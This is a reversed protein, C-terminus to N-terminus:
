RWSNKYESIVVDENFFGGFYPYFRKVFKIWLYRVNRGGLGRLM